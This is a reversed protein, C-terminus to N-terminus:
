STRCTCCRSVELFLQLVDVEWEAESLTNDRDGEAEELMGNQMDSFEQATGHGSRARACVCVKLVM